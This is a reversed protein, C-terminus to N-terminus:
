SRERELLEALNQLAQDANQRALGVVMPEMMKLIGGLRLEWHQTLRTGDGDPELEFRAGLDIPGASGEHALVREPEFATIAVEAEAERGQMSLHQWFRRGVATPGDDLPRTALLGPVWEPARAFDVLIAWVAAPPHALRVEAIGEAM